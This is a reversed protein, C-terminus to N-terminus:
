KTIVELIKDIKEDQKQLHGHIEKLLLEAKNSLNEVLEQKDNQSLNENLNMISLFFSMLSVIDLFTFQGFEGNGLGNRQNM